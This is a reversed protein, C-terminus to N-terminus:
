EFEKLRDERLALPKNLIESLVVARRLNDRGTITLRRPRPVKKVPLAASGALTSELTQHGGLGGLDESVHITSHETHPDGTRATYEDSIQSAGSVSHSRPHTARQTRQPSRQPRQQTARGQAPRAPSPRPAQGPTAQGAPTVRAAPQGSQQQSQQRAQQQSQAGTASRQRALMEQRRKRLEELQAERRKQLEALRQKRAEVEAAQEESPDPVPRGTRMAENMRRQREQQIARAQKIESLKKGVSGLVSIGIIVFFLVIQPNNTIVQWLQGM